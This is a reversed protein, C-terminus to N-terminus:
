GGPRIKVFRIDTAGERALPRLVPFAAAFGRPLGTLGNYDALFVAGAGANAVFAGNGLRPRESSLNMTRTLPRERWTAGRDTSSAFYVRAPWRREGARQRRLDIWTMAVNGRGDVAIAPMFAADSVSIRGLRRWTVGGDDSRAAHLRSHSSADRAHTVWAIYVTRGDAALQAPPIYTDVGWRDGTPGHVLPEAPFEGVQGLIPFPTSWTGGGDRSRMTYIRNPYEGEEEALGGSGNVESFVDLLTGDPLRLVTNGLPARAVDGTPVYALRPQEWSRGADDSRTFYAKGWFMNSTAYRAPDSVQSMLYLTKPRRPDVTIRAQDPIGFAPSATM